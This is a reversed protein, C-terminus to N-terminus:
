VCSAIARGATRGQLECAIGHWALRFASVVKQDLEVAVDRMEWHEDSLM